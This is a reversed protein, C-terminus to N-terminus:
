KQRLMRQFWGRYIYFVEIAEVIMLSKEVLFFRSDERMKFSLKQHKQTMIQKPPPHCYNILLQPLHSASNPMFNCWWHKYGVFSIWSGASQLCNVLLCMILMMMMVVAKLYKYHWGILSHQKQKWNKNGQSERKHQVCVNLRTWTGM